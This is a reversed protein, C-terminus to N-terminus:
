TGLIIITAEGDDTAHPCWIAITGPVSGDGEVDNTVKALPIVATRGPPVFNFTAQGSTVIISGDSYYGRTDVELYTVGTNTVQIETITTWSSLDWYVASAYNAPVVIGTQRLCRTAGFEEAVAAPLTNNSFDATLSRILYPTFKGYATM